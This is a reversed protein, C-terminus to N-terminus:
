NAKLDESLALVRYIIISLHYVQLIFTDDIVESSYAPGVIDNTNELQQGVDLAGRSTWRTRWARGM